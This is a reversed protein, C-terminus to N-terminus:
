YEGFLAEMFRKSAYGDELPTYKEKFEKLKKGFKEQYNEADLIASVLEDKTKCLAGPATEEYSVLPPRDEFYKDYDPVFFIMPKGTQAYDFRLSSYDLIAMDSAITLDNIEPYRTVDIVNETKEVLSGARKNM